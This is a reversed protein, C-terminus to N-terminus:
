PHFPCLICIRNLYSADFLNWTRTPVPDCLVRGSFVQRVPENKMSPGIVWVMTSFSFSRELCILDSTLLSFASKRALWLVSLTSFPLEFSKNLWIFRLRPWDLWKFLAYQHTDWLANNWFELVCETWSLLYSKSLAIRSIGTFIANHSHQYCARYALLYVKHNLQRWAQQSDQVLIYYDCIHAELAKM